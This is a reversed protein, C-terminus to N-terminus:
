CYNGDENEHTGHENSFKRIFEDVDGYFHHINKLIKEIDWNWWAIKLLKRIQENSFRYKLIKAPVGGVIAYPPVNKTVVAGAGIVAGDGIRVGSLIIARSGIWVDNGIVVPGKSYTDREKKYIFRSRLPFTSVRDYRHEGSLVIVVDDAISCFKGITLRDEKRFSVIIPKGYTYKGIKVTGLPRQFKSVIERWLFDTIVSFFRVM